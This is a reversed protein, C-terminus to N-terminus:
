FFCVISITFFSNFETVQKTRKQHENTLLQYKCSEDKRLAREKKLEPSWFTKISKMTANLQEKTLKLDHELQQVYSINQDYNYYNIQNHLLNESPYFSSSTTSSRNIYEHNIHRCLVDASGHRQHNQRNLSRRSQHQDSSYKDEESYYISEGASQSVTRKTPFSEVPPPPAPAKKSPSSIQDEPENKLPEHPIPTQFFL